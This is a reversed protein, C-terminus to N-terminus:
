IAFGYLAGYKERLGQLYHSPNMPEGTAREILDRPPYKSGHRYINDQLWGLIPGFSGAEILADTDGVDKRLAAWIQYSLVNGMSYTPFYGISGMSWHVDQLCGLSDSPPRIGLYSEYKANWAEPLDDIRLKETLLEREIEYRVIVHLNYTLEDAEVRIFSPRVKNVARYFDESTLGSLSPFQSQLAPFFRRWFPRSRGVINEWLRSQSEHVGLSVGGSLPLRDWEAPSGQEYMGHGAEHLSGFIAAGIFPQYRTTLRIDGVSWGACFPHPATDQRGREFDFGVARVIQETFERQRAVDWDGYLASDDVEPRDAIQRVMEVQPERVAAFMADVDQTTAGEEYQDLLADYVDREYGLHEAEERAIEFMRQLTPRFLDFRNERRAQVWEEHGLASLRSKEAVLTAPIKTKIALQRRVLRLLAVDDEREPTAAELAGQTEEAVFREHALKTLLGVHEARAAAGGPPMYTQQDWDMMGIASNLADVEYLRSKLTELPLSM